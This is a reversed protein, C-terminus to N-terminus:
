TSGEIRVPVPDPCYQPHGSIMDRGRGRIVITYRHHQTEVELVSGECLKDLYVGREIDPQVINRSVKDSGKLGNGTSSTSKMTASMARLSLRIM